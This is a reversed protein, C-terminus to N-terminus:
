YRIEGRRVEGFNCLLYFSRNYEIASSKPAGIYQVKRTFVRSNVIDLVQVRGTDLWQIIALDESDVQIM